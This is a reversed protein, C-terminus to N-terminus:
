EQSRVHRVLRVMPRILDVGDWPSSFLHMRGMKVVRDVGSRGAAQALKEERQASKVALGLTQVTGDFKSIVELLDDVLLVSLTRGQTPKPIETGRGLLITWDPSAPFVARNPADELLWLARALCIGSTLSPEIQRRPHLRNEEQFAEGLDKVFEDPDREDCFELFLAQPSSCARQEFQWVDRAIRRCWSSREARDGWAEADMAAVSLRPGFVVVRAWHPFPLKRVQSVAEAGGWIMAGDVAQAMAEHLNTRSHDFSVMFTRETLVGYRDVEQLKEMIQQTIELLGRPVRVLCGNGGLFACTLSLVPQIEINGAPWHGVVGLPFARLRARGDKRWGGNLFDPGLERLLVPELTGRRLWLRLFALGPVERLERVDLAAAWQEFVELVTQPAIEKQRAIERLRQAGCTIEQPSHVEQTLMLDNMCVMGRARNTALPKWTAADGSRRRPYEERLASVPASGEAPASTTTSSKPWIM